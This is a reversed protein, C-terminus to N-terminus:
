WLYRMQSSCRFSDERRFSPRCCRKQWCHPRNWKNDSKSPSLLHREFERIQYICHADALVNKAARVKLICALTGPVPKCEQSLASACCEGAAEEEAAASIPSAHKKAIELLQCDTCLLQRARSSRCLLLRRLRPSAPSTANRPLARSSLRSPSCSWARTDGLVLARRLDVRRLGVWLVLSTRRYVRQTVGLCTYM